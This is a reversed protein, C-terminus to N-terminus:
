QSLTVPKGGAWIQPATTDCINKWTYFEQQGCLGNVLIFHTDEAQSLTDTQEASHQVLWERRPLSSILLKFSKKNCIPINQFGSIERKTSTTPWSPCLPSSCAITLELVSHYSLSEIQQFFTASSEGQLNIRNHNWPGKFFGAKSLWGCLIAAYCSCLLAIM